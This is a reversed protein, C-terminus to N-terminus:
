IKKYIFLVSQIALYINKKEFKYVKSVIEINGSVM